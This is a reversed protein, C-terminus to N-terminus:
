TGQDPTPTVDKTKVNMKRDDDGGEQRASDINVDLINM